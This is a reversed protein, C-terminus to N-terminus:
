TICSVDPDTSKSTNQKQSSGGIQVFHKVRLKKLWGIFWLFLLRDIIFIQIKENTRVKSGKNKAVTKIYQFNYNQLHFYTVINFFHM